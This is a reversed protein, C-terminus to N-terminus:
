FYLELCIPSQHRSNIVDAKRDFRTFNNADHTLTATSLTDHRLGDHTQQFM